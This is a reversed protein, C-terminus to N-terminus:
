PRLLITLPISFRFADDVLASRRPSIPRLQAERTNACTTLNCTEYSGARFQLVVPKCPEGLNSVPDIIRFM